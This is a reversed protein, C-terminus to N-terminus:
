GSSTGVGAEMGVITGSVGAETKVVTKSVGGKGISRAGAIGNGRAEEGTGTFGSGFVDKGIGGRYPVTLIYTSDM